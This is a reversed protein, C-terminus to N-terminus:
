DIFMSRKVLRMNDTGYDVVTFKATPIVPITFTASMSTPTGALNCNMIWDTPWKVDQLHMCNFEHQIDAIASMKHLPVTLLVKWVYTDYHSVLRASSINGARSLLRHYQGMFDESVELM